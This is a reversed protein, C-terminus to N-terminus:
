SHSEKELEPLLSKRLELINGFGDSPELFRVSDMVKHMLMVGLGGPKLLEKEHLDICCPDVPQACDKLLFVLDQDDQYIELILPRKEEDKYAYRIVNTCAEDIALAICEIWEEDISLTACAKRVAGRMDCLKSPCAVCDKRSILKM